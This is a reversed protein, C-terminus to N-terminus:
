KYSDLTLYDRLRLKMGNDRGHQSRSDSIVCTRTGIMSLVLISMHKRLAVCQRLLPSLMRCCVPLIREWPCHQKMGLGSFRRTCLSGILTDSFVSEM